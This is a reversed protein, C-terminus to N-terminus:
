PVVSLAAKMARQYPLIPEYVWEGM